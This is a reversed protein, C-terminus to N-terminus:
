PTVPTTGSAYTLWYDTNGELAVYGLSGTFGSPPTNVPYCGVYRDVNTTAYCAGVLVPFATGNDEYRVAWVDEDADPVEMVKDSVRKQLAIELEGTYTELNTFDQTLESSLMSGDPDGDFRNRVTMNKAEYEQSVTLAANFVVKAQSNATKLKAQRIFYTASPVLVGTLVAIISLVIVLEVMTFGKFKKKM